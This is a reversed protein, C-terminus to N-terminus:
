SRVLAAAGRTWYMRDIETNTPNTIESLMEAKERSLTHKQTNSSEQRLRADIFRRKARM